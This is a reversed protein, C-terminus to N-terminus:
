RKAGLVVRALIPRRTAVERVSSFGAANALETIRAVTRPRGRGMALLYFGFYADETPSAGRDPSMQEAIVITGGPALAHHVTRLIALATEDDHDLLVRILTAVDAGEPLPGSRFDGRHVVVRDLLGAHSLAEGARTAVAPLDFLELQLQPLREALLAVFAGEGGGIDLLRTHTRFTYSSLIEEAVLPLSAAMLRGYPAVSHADLMAPEDNGSYGWFRRLNTPRPGDRLLSVPDRLDEYLMPHHAIMERVGVSGLLAAGLEGLTYRDGALRAVLGLSAAASLLREAAEDSLDMREALDRRERPADALSELVELQVCAQLVQAYVFGACLDFLQRARRNAVGRTLPFRSAWSQFRPDALRRNRFALFRERWTGLSGSRSREGTLAM